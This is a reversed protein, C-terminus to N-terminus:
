EEEPEAVFCATSPGPPAAILCTRPLHFWRMAEFDDPLGTLGTTSGTRGPPSSPARAQALYGGLAEEGTQARHQPYTLRGGADFRMARLRPELIGVPKNVAATAGSGCFIVVHDDTGGVADRILRRADERLRTTQLGTGSGETRTNAYRPLVQDRIFDEVFSLSRGSATYDAYTIGRPGYPGDLVEGEGIIGARIRELLASTPAMEAAISV